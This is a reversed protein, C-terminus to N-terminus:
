VQNPLQSLTRRTTPRSTLPLYLESDTKSKQRGRPSMKQSKKKKKEVKPGFKSLAWIVGSAPLRTGLGTQTQGEAQEQQVVYERVGNKNNSNCECKPFTLLVRGVKQARDEASTKTLKQIKIKDDRKQLIGGPVFGICLYNVLIKKAPAFVPAVHIRVSIFDRLFRALIRFIIGRCYKGTNARTRICAGCTNACFNIGWSTKAAHIPKTGPPITM